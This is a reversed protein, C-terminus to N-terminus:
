LVKYAKSRITHIHDILDGDDYIGAQSKIFAVEDERLPDCNEDM